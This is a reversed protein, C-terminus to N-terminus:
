VALAVPRRVGRCRRPRASCVDRVAERWWSRDGRSCVLGRPGHIDVELHCAGDIQEIGSDNVSMLELFYPLTSAEDVGFTNLSNTVKQRIEEDNADDEINFTSKLIDIIPYYAMNRGYSLCKGELFTVDENAVAKRFEYLLRSKGVGAEAVISFARGRGSKSM